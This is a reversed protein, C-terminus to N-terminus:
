STDPTLEVLIEDSWSFNGGTDTAKARVTFNTRTETLRPSLFRHEFPFNGDTLVRVGDAHFQVNRVQVDDTVSATL